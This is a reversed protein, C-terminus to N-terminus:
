DGPLPLVLADSEVTFSGESGTYGLGQLAAQLGQADVTARPRNRRESWAAYSSRFAALASRAPEPTFDTSWSESGPAATGSAWRLTEGAFEVAVLAEFEAREAPALAELPDISRLLVRERQLVLDAHRFSELVHLRNARVTRRALALEVFEPRILRAVPAPGAPRPANVGLLALLEDHLEHLALPTSRREGATLRGPFRLIVPVRLVEEHLTRRHGLAGHELFEDGHDSVLVVLTNEALDFRALEDLLLGVNHDLWAVEGQYRLRCSAASAADTTAPGCACNPDAIGAPDVRRLFEAPPRYDYHADFFHAFLFFPRADAAAEALAERALETVRAASVDAHSAAELAHETRTLRARAVEVREPAHAADVSALLAAASTLEDAANALEAGYGRAYREFGRAFGYRPDLYPGSYIGDTRYGARALMEALPMLEDSLREGDQEVAHALEPLGTFLSTHSPLTWSTTARAEEYVLGAAALADIRPTPSETPAHALRAGYAGLADARVSDLSILVLNPRPDRAKEGCAALGVLALLLAPRM